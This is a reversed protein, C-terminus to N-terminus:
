NPPPHLHFAIFLSRLTARGAAWASWSTPRSQYIWEVLNQVTSAGALRRTLAIGLVLIVAEIIWM